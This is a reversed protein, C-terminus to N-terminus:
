PRHGCGAATFALLRGDGSVIYVVGDAVTPSSGTNPVSATWVPRCSPRNGCGDANFAYLTGLGNAVSGASSIFVLGNAVAPTTFAGNALQATWLPQCNGGGCGAAPLALLLGEVTGVYAVSGVVAPSSQSVFDENPSPPGFAIYDLNLNGVTDRTIVTEDPNFGTKQPDHGFQPWSATAALASDPVALMGVTALAAVLLLFVARGATRQAFRRRWRSRIGIAMPEEEM